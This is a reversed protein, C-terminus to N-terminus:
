AKRVRRQRRVRLRRVAEVSVWVMAGFIAMVLGYIWLPWSFSATLFHFTVKRTNQAIFIVLIVFGIVLVISWGIPPRKRPSGSPHEHSPQPRPAEAM